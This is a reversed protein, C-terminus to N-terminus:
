LKCYSLYLLCGDYSLHCVAHQDLVRAHGLRREKLYVVLKDEGGRRTEDETM